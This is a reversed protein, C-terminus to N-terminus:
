GMDKNHRSRRDGTRQSHGDIAIQLYRDDVFQWGAALRDLSDVVVQLAACLYIGEQALLYLGASLYVDDIREDFLVLFHIQM